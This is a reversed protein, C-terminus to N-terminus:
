RAPPEAFTGPSISANRCSNEMGTSNNFGNWRTTGGASPGPASSTSCFGPWSATATPRAKLLKSDRHDFDIQQFVGFPFILPATAASRRHGRHFHPVYPRGPQLHQHHYQQGPQQIKAVPVPEIPLSFRDRRLHLRRLLFISLEAIYFRAEELALRLGVVVLPPHVYDLLQM